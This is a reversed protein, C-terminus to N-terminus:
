PTRPCIKWGSKRISYDAAWEIKGKAEVGNPGDSGSYKQDNVTLYDFRSETQFERVELVVPDNDIVITCKDNNYHNNPYNRSQICRKGHDVVEKCSHQQSSTSPEEVHWVRASADTTPPPKVVNYDWSFTTTYAKEDVHRGLQKVKHTIAMMGVEEEVVKAKDEGKPMELPLTIPTEDVVENVEDNDDSCAGEGVSGSGAVSEAAWPVPLLVFFLLSFNVFPAM